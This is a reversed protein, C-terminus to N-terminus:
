ESVGEQNTIFWGKLYRSLEEDNIDKLKREVPWSETYKLVYPRLLRMAQTGDKIRSQLCGEYYGDETAVCWQLKYGQKKLDGCLEILNRFYNVRVAINRFVIYSCDANHPEGKWYKYIYEAKKLLEFFQDSREEEHIARFLIDNKFKQFDKNM